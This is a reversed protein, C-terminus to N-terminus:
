SASKDGDAPPAAAPAPSAEAPKSEEAKKDAAAKEEAAKKEAAAKKEDAAKKEAAKRAAEAEAERAERMRQEAQERYSPPAASAAKVTAPGLPKTRVQLDEEVSVQCALRMNGRITRHVRERMNPRQPKTSLVWLRCRGCIGNGLCNVHTWMGRYLPIGQALAVERLRTGAPVDVTINENVFCVKPV